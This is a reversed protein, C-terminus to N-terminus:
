GRFNLKNNKVWDWKKCGRLKAFRKWNRRSGSKTKCTGFQFFYIKDDNEITWYFGTGGLCDKIVEVKWKSKRLIRLQRSLEVDVLNIEIVDYGERLRRNVEKEIGNMFKTM